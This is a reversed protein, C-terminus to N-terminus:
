HGGLEEAAKLQELWQVRVSELVVDLLASVLPDLHEVARYTERRLTNTQLRALWTVARPRRDGSRRFCSSARSRWAGCSIALVVVFFVRNGFGVLRARCLASDHAWRSSSRCMLPRVPCGRSGVFPTVARKRRWSLSSYYVSRALGSARFFCSPLVPVPRLLLARRNVLLWHFRVPIPLSSLRGRPGHGSRDPNRLHEHQGTREASVIYQKVVQPPLPPPPRVMVRCIRPSQIKTNPLLLHRVVSSAPRPPLLSCFLSPPFVLLRPLGLNMRGPTQAHAHTAKFLPQCAARDRVSHKGERERERERQRSPMQRQTRM